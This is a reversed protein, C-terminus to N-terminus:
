YYMRDIKTYNDKIFKNISHLVEFVIMNPTTILSYDTYKLLARAFTKRTYPILIQNQFIEM